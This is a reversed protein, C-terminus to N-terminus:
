CSAVFEWPTTKPDNQPNRPIGASEPVGTPVNNEKLMPICPRHLLKGAKMALSFIRKLTTLERNIEGTSVSDITRTREPVHRVFIQARSVPEADLGERGFAGAMLARETRGRRVEFDM